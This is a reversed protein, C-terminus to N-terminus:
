EQGFSSRDGGKLLTKLWSPDHYWKRLFPLLAAVALGAGGAMVLWPWKNKGEPKPSPTASPSATPTAAIEAAATAALVQATATPKPTVMSVATPKVTPTATPTPTPTATPTPTPSPTPTPTPTPALDLCNAPSKTPAQDAQWEGGDPVRAYSKDTTTKTYAYSDITTGATNFLTPTDGNNNLYTSMEWYCTSTSGLLGAVPIKASSGADSQFDTDDDFFYDSLDVTSSDPNYFEVWEKNGSSPAPLFENIVVAAHAPTAALWLYM